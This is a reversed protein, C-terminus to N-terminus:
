SFNSNEFSPMKTAQLAWSWDHWGFGSARDGFVDINRCVRGHLGATTTNSSAHAAGFAAQTGSLGLLLHLSDPHGGFLGILAGDLAINPFM